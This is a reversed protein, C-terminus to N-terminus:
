GIAKNIAEIAKDYNPHNTVEPVYEVYTVKGGKDVVFIARTLLTIPLGELVVGYNKGFSHDKVDSLTQMNEIKKDGCYRKQAFPLDLSITYCAVKDKKAALAEDFKKTQEACVPTDLSPVVSFLRVKPETKEITIVELAGNVCNFSPAKDGVKVETGALTKEGGKFTVTRAMSTRRSPHNSRKPLPISPPTFTLPAVKLLPVLVEEALRTSFETGGKPYVHANDFFARDELRTRHDAFTCGHERELRTMAARFEAEIAPTYERRHDSHLPIAVLVVAIGEARCRRLLRELAAVASGGARYRRLWKRLHVLGERTDAPGAPEGWGGHSEIAHGWLGQSDLGTEDSTLPVGPAAMESAPVGTGGPFAYRCIEQRHMCLPFLRYTLLRRLTGSRAADALTGPVEHWRLRRAIDFGLWENYANLEEPCVEVVVLRPRAGENLLRDLLYASTRPDGSPVAFNMARLNEGPLRRRLVEGVEGAMFALGIRSSGLAIVDPGQPRARLTSFLYEATAFRVQPWRYDLLIGGALQFLLCFLAAWALARCATGRRTLNGAM